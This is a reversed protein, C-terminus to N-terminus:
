MLILENDFMDEIVGVTKDDFLIERLVGLALLTTVDQPEKFHVFVEEKDEHYYMPYFVLNPYVSEMNKIHDPSGDDQHWISFAVTADHDNVYVIDFHYMEIDYMLEQEIYIDPKPIKVIFGVANKM